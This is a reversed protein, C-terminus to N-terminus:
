LGYKNNLYDLVTAVEGDTLSRDYWVVEAIMGGIFGGITSSYWDGIGVPTVGVEGSTITDTATGSKNKVLLTNATRRICTARAAFNTPAALTINQTKWQFYVRNTQEIWSLLDAGSTGQTILRPYEMGPSAPKSVAFATFNTAAVVLLNTFGAKQATFYYAPKGGIVNNTYYPFDTTDTRYSATYGRGSSDLWNTITGNAHVVGDAKYWFLLNSITDPTVM